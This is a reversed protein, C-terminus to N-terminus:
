VKSIRNKWYERAAEACRARGKATKPGTSLGGHFRCRRKGHIPYNRCKGGSRTRASCPELAKTEEPFGMLLEHPGKKKRPGSRVFIRVRLARAIRRLAQTPARPLREKKEWRSVTSPAVGAARGVARISVGFRVRAQQLYAGTKDITYKTMQIRKRRLIAITKTAATKGGRRRLAGRSFGNGRGGGIPLPPMPVLNFAMQRAIAGGEFAPAVGYPYPTHTAGGNGRRQVGRQVRRQVPMARANCWTM